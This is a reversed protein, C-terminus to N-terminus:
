INKQIYILKEKLKPKIDRKILVNIRNSLQKMIEKSDKNQKKAIKNVEKKLTKILTDLEQKEKKSLKITNTVAIEKVAQTSKTAQGTKKGEKFYDFLAKRTLEWYYGAWWGDKDKVVSAWLQFNLLASKISNYEWDINWKYLWVESFLMQLKKIDDSWSEPSIELGDYRMLIKQEQTLPAPAKAWTYLETNEEVLPTFSFKERLATRSKNWFYGAESHTRSDIIGAAIQFDIISDKISEYKGDIEWSYLDIDIFLEQLKLINLEPSDPWVTVWAYKGLFTKWLQISVQTDPNVVKWEVTRKWWRLARNLGEDWYWMWIDIRDHEYGRVWARVIAGWRDEVQGVWYWKLYIKTGYDYWKPGALLWTFVDKWSATTKGPGNLRIDGAYTGTAYRSQGALPSYYATVIFEADKWSLDAFVWGISWSLLTFILFLISVVKSLYNM